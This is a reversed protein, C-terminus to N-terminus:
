NVFQCYNNKIYEAAKNKIVAIIGNSIIYDDFDVIVKEDYSVTENDKDYMLAIDTIKKAFDTMGIKEFAAVIRKRLIDGNQTFFEKSSADQVFVDLAYIDKRDDNMKSFEGEIDDQKQLVLQYSLAVGELLESSDASLIVDQTLNKYKEKLAILRDLEAKQAKIEKQHRSYARAAFYFIVAAVVSVVALVILLYGYEDIWEKM